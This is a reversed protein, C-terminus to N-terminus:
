LAKAAELIKMARHYTTHRELFTRRGSAAIRQMEEESYSHVVEKVDESERVLIFDRGPTALQEMDKTYDSVLLGGSALVELFRQNIGGRRVVESHHVDVNLVSKSYIGSLESWDAFGHYNMGHEHGRWDRGFIHADGGFPYLIRKFGDERDQYWSGSFSVDYLKPTDVPHFFEPSVGLPLFHPSDM